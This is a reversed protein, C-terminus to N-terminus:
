DKFGEVQWMILRYLGRIGYSTIIFSFAAVVLGVVYKRITSGFSDYADYIAAKRGKIKSFSEYESLPDHDKLNPYKNLLSRLADDGIKDRHKYPTYRGGRAKITSITRDIEVDYKDKIYARFDNTFVLDVSSYTKKYYVDAGFYFGFLGVIIGAVIGIRNIGRKINM